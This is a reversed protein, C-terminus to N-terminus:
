VGHEPRKRCSRELDGGHAARMMCHLPELNLNESGKDTSGVVCNSQETANKQRVANLLAHDADILFDGHITVSSHQCRSRNKDNREVIGLVGLSGAIPAM